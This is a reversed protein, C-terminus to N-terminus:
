EVTYKNNNTNIPSIVTDHIKEKKNNGSWELPKWNEDKVSSNMKATSKAGINSVNIKWARINFFDKFYKLLLLNTAM